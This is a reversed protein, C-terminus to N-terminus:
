ICTQMCTQKGVAKDGKEKGRRKGGSVEQTKKYPRYATKVRQLTSFSCRTGFCDALSVLSVFCIAAAKHLLLAPITAVRDHEESSTAPQM